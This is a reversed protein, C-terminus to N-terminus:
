PTPSHLACPETSRTADRCTGRAPRVGAPRRRPPRAVAQIVMPRGSVPILPKAQAYGASAFREGMGAMPIVITEAHLRSPRQSSTLSSCNGSHRPGAATSPSTKRREGVAHLTAASLGRRAERVHLAAPLGPERLVRREDRTGARRDHRVGRADARRDRLLLDRELRVRGDPRRHLTAKRSHRVGLWRRGPHLRLQDIRALASSLRPLGAVRRRVRMGRRVAQFRDLGWYCTFDCYNVVVPQAPDIWDRALFVAHVPGLKHAPIGRVTATPCLRNLIEAMGYQPDDLHDQNCIFLVKTEGPFLDLVHAIIPKGEIEILPKPVPMARAGSANASARCRFSSRCRETLRWRSRPDPPYADDLGM